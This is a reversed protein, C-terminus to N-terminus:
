QTPHHRGHALGTWTPAAPPSNVVRAVPPRLLVSDERVASGDAVAGHSGHVTRPRCCQAAMRSGPRPFHCPHGGGVAPARLAGRAHIRRPGYPRRQPARHARELRLVCRRRALRRSRSSSALLTALGQCSLAQAVLLLLWCTGLVAHALAYADAVGMRLLSAPRFALTALALLALAALSLRLPVAHRARDVNPGLAPPTTTPHSLVFECRTTSRCPM